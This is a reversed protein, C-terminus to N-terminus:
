TQRQVRVNEMVNILKKDEDDFIIKNIFSLFNYAKEATRFGFRGRDGGTYEALLYRDMKGVNNIDLVSIVNTVAGDWTM